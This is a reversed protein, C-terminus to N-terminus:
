ISSMVLRGTISNRKLSVYSFRIFILSIIKMRAFNCFDKSIGAYLYRVDPTGRAYEAHAQLTSITYVMRGFIRVFNKLM